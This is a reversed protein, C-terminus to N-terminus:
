CSKPAHPDTRESRLAAVRPCLASLHLVHCFIKFSANKQPKSFHSSLVSTNKQRHAITVQLAQPDVM